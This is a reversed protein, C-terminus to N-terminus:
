VVSKRDIVSVLPTVINTSDLRGGMGVEFSVFDVKQELFYLIAIATAAEFYTCQYELVFPYVKEALRSLDFDSIPIENIMIRENYSVLHPSTYMGVRFGASQLISATMATVSGKGNTGAVHIFKLQQEPNGLSTMLKTINELGLKMGSMSHLWKLYDM